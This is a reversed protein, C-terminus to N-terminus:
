LDNDPNAEIKPHFFGGRGHSGGGFWGFGHGSFNGNRLQEAQSETIVGEEVANDVAEQFSAQMADRVDGADLNLEDLLDSLSKGEQRATALDDESIGLANALIEDRDIFQMLAQQAKMLDAQDETLYGEAVAQEIAATDAAQRAAQLEAVTVGLADALFGDYDFSTGFGFRGGRGFDKGFGRFGGFEGEWPHTGDTDDDDTQITLKNNAAFGPSFAMVGLALVLVLAGIVTFLKWNIKNDM